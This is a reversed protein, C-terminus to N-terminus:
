ALWEGRIMYGIGRMTHILKPQDPRDIKHRLLRVFAELTNEEVMRHAGWVSEILQHRPVVDGASQMLLELLRFERRTLFIRTGNRVVEHTCLDLTLDAYELKSSQSHLARRRIAKLRAVLEDFSFPKTLYDDAGLDLGRVIDHEADKATLMLVPTMNNGSRLGRAVEFGDLRPMMVDLIIVDFQDGCAAHLGEVGDMACTVEHGEESLGRLLLDAMRREDEVVLLKM